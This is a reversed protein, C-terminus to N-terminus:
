LPKETQDPLPYPRSRPLGAGKARLEQSIEAYKGLSWALAMSMAVILGPLITIRPM